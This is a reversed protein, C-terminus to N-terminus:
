FSFGARLMLTAGPKYDPTDSTFNVRRAFVYGVEVHGAPGQPVLWEVGLIARADTYDVSDASGDAREVAWRGGGFEGALYGWWQADGFTALRRALKPQPFVVNLKTDEDPNWIVGGAPLIKTKNRNVYLAGGVVQLQPSFAVIALGRGRLQFTDSTWEKFDGYVGPTVALDAFLWPALRPRWAFEVSADYLSPPLDPAAGSRPGQWFHAAVDPTVLLPAWGERLPVAAAASLEFDNIQLGNEGAGPLWTYDFKLRQLLPRAAPSDQRDSLEPVLTAPPTYNLDTGSANTPRVEEQVSNPAGQGWAPLSLSWLAFLLLSRRFPAPRMSIVEKLTRQVVVAM